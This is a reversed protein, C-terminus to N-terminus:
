KKFYVHYSSYSMIKKKLKNCIEHWTETDCMCSVTNINCHKITHGFENKRHQTIIRANYFRLMSLVYEKDKENYCTIIRHLQTGKNLQSRDIFSVEM